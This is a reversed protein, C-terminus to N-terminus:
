KSKGLIEGRGMGLIEATKVSLAKLMIRGYGEAIDVSVTVVVNAGLAKGLSVASDDSVYGSMQFEQEALLTEIQHRDVLKFSANQLNYEVDEVAYESDINIKVKSRHRAAIDKIQAPNLREVYTRAREESYGQGNLYALAMSKDNNYLSASVTKEGQSTEFVAVITGDKLAKVEDKDLLDAAADNVAGSILERRSKTRSSEGSSEGNSSTVCSVM